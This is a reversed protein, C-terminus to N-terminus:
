LQTKDTWAARQAATIKDVHALRVTVEINSKRRM